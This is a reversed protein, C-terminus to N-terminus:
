PYFDLNRNAMPERGSEHTKGGVPNPLPKRVKLQLTVLAVWLFMLFTRRGHRDERRHTQRWERANMGM